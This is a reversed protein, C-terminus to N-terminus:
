TCWGASLDARLEFTPAQPTGKNSRPRQRRTDSGRSATRFRRKRATWPDGASRAVISRPLASSRRTGFGSRTKAGWMDQVGEGHAHEPRQPPTQHRALDRHLRADRRLSPRKDELSRPRRSRSARAARSPVTSLTPTLGGARGSTFHGRVNHPLRAPIATSDDGRGWVRTGAAQAMAAHATTPAGQWM